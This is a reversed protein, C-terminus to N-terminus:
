ISPGYKGAGNAKWLTRKRGRMHYFYLGPIYYHIYGKLSLAKSYANDVGLLRKRNENFGGCTKWATRNTLIFFGSLAGPIRSVITDVLVGDKDVKSYQDFRDKAYLIHDKLDDTKPADEARQQPAGIRNTVCTIWGVNNPVKGIAMQCMDYWYPNPNFLDWDLFLVWETGAERMYRNYAKALKRHQEFPVCVTIKESM